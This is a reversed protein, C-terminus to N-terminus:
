TSSAIRFIKGQIFSVVYLFGDYPSVELDTIGGFGQGFIVEGLEDPNDAIKDELPGELSLGTRNNNLDFHYVYGNNVDGVFMDNEYQEGYRDSNLFKLATPGVTPSKWAFEPDSYKGEGGFSVLNKEADPIRITDGIRGENDEWFGQITKWGSNFGPEVLNIEDGFRPGNETDWLNGTVPDFDIGFGNRIGYAYYLNLPYENGLVKNEEDREPIAQGQQTFRLIGSRGDPELGDGVNMVTTDQKQPQDGTASGVVLFIDNDPGFTVVGGNHISRPLTHIDLILKPDVLHNNTFQYKYLRNGIAKGEDEAEAETYYLFVSQPSYKNGNTSVAVGLMGREGETAVNVDLLPEPLLSGNVIRRVTGQNKELVIIDEPGLFAMSTPSNLGDAIEQVILRSDTVKPSAQVQNDGAIGKQDLDNQTQAIAVALYSYSAEM